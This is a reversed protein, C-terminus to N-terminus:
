VPCFLERLRGVRFGSDCQVRSGFGQVRFLSIGLKLSGPPCQRHLGPVRNPPRRNAEPGACDTPM